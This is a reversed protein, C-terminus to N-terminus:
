VGRGGAPSAGTSSVILFSLGDRKVAHVYECKRNAIEIARVGKTFDTCPAVTSTAAHPIHTTQYGPTIFLPQRNCDMPVVIM